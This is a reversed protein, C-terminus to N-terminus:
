GLIARWIAVIGWVTLSGILGGIAALAVWALTVGFAYALGKTKSRKPKPEITVEPLQDTWVNSNNTM